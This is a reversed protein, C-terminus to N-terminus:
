TLSGSQPTMVSRTRCRKTSIPSRDSFGQIRASLRSRIPKNLFTHKFGLTASITSREAPVHAGLSAVTSGSAAWHPRGTNKVHPGSPIQIAVGSCSGTRTGAEVIVPGISVTPAPSLMLAPKMHARAIPAVRTSAAANALRTADIM